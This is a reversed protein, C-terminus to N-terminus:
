RKELLIPSLHVWSQGGDSTKWLSPNDSPGSIAYGNSSDAFRIQSVYAQEDANMDFNLSKPLTTWTQSADTTVCLNSGCRVFAQQASIIQVNDVRLPLNKLIGPAVQWTQGDDQSTYTLLISFEPTGDANFKVVSVPLFGQTGFFAPVLPMVAGAAYAPEPLALKFDKWHQGLDNSLSFRVSGAPESAMDGYTILTHKGDFYLSDGCINCLHVTGTPLSPEPSPAVLPVVEWVLGGDRTQYYKLYANGAGMDATEALGVSPSKFEFMANQLIDNPPLTEWTKGGDQTRLLGGTNTSANYTSLWADQDTLFYSGAYVYDGMPSADSWSLGGDTTRLLWNMNGNRTAWGWGAGGTLIHVQNLQIASGTLPLATASALAPALTPQATATAPALTPQATATAPAATVTATAIPAKAPKQVVQSSAPQAPATTPTVATPAPLNCAGLSALVFLLVILKIGTKRM